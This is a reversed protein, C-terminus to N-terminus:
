IRRQNMQSNIIGGLTYTEPEAPKRTRTTQTSGRELVANQKQIERAQEEAGPKGQVIEGKLRRVEGVAWQVQEPFPKSKQDDPIGRAVDWFLRNDLTGKGMNLGAGAALEEAKTRVNADAQEQAVEEDKQRKAEDQAKLEERVLKAIENKDPVESGGVGAEAWAEAVKEDYDPDAEDLDRITALATKVREKRGEKTVPKPAEAPPEPEKEASKQRLEELERRTQATEETAAHMKQEAEIRAKETEEWTKHKPEFKPPETEPPKTEDPPKGDETESTEEPLPTEEEEPKPELAGMGGAAPHETLVQHRSRELINALSDEDEPGKFEELLVQTDQPQTEKGIEAEGAM